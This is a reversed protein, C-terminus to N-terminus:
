TTTITTTNANYLKDNKIYNLANAYKLTMKAVYEHLPTSVFANSSFNAANM